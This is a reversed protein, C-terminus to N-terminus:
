PASRPYVLARLLGQSEEERIKRPRGRRPKNSGESMERKLVEAIRAAMGKHIRLSPIPVGLKRLEHAIQQVRQKSVGFERSLKEPGVTVYERGIRLWEQYGLCKKITKM